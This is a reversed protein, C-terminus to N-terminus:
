SVGGPPLPDRPAPRVPGGMRRDRRWGEANERGPPPEFRAVPQATVAQRILAAADAGPEIRVHTGGYYNVIAPAQAATVQPAGRAERRVEMRVAFKETERRSWRRMLIVAVVAVALFVAGIAALVWLLTALWSLLAAALM